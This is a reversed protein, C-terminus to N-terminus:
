NNKIEEFEEEDEKSDIIGSVELGRQFIKSIFGALEVELMQDIQQDIDGEPREEEDLFLLALEAFNRSQIASVQAKYEPNEKDEVIKPKGGQSPLRKTPVKPMMQEYKANIEDVKSQPRSAVKFEIIDGDDTRFGVMATRKIKKVKDAFKMVKAM